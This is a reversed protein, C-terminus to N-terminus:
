RSEAVEDRTLNPIYVQWAGGIFRVNQFAPSNDYLQSSCRGAMGYAPVNLRAIILGTMSNWQQTVASRARAFENPSVGLAASRELLVALGTDTPDIPEVTSWWPTVTGDAKYLSHETFKYLQTGAALLKKEPVGLFANRADADLTMFDIDQNLM